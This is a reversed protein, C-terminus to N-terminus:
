LQREFGDIRGGVRRQGHGTIARHGACPLQEHERLGAVGRVRGRQEVRQAAVKAVRAVAAPVVAHVRLAGREVRGLIEVRVGEDHERAGRPIRRRAVGGRALCGFLGGRQNLVAERRVAAVRQEVRRAVGIEDDPLPASCFGSICRVSAHSAARGCEAVGREVVRECAGRLGDLAREDVRCGAAHGLQREACGVVPEARGDTRITRDPRHPRRAARASRSGPAPARM